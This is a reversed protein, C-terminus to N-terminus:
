QQISENTLQYFLREWQNAIKQPTFNAIKEKAKRAFQQRKEENDILLQIKDAMEQPKFPTTIFGCENNDIIDHVAEYTDYVCPICGYAMGETLVMGWGEFTSTMCIFKSKAYYDAVNSKRGEFHLNKVGKRKAYKELYNRDPGDGVIYANWEPNKKSLLSWMDIFEHVNKQPESLRGVLLINNRNTTDDMKVSSFTNPNNIACIKETAFTPMYRKLRPIFKDSLLCIIDSCNMLTKWKNREVHIVHRKLICPLTIGIIKYFNVSLRKTHLNKKLRRIYDIASFPQIHWVSVTKINEPTNTLLFLTEPTTQQNIVININYKNLISLYHKLFLTKDNKFETAFEQIGSFETFDTIAPGTSLFVVNHGHQKFEHTLIDTVRQVGGRNPNIECIFLFLINM